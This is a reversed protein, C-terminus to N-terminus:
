VSGVNREPEGSPTAENKDASAGLYQDRFDTAYTIIKEKIDDSLSGLMEIEEGIEPHKEKFFALMKTRFDRIHPM